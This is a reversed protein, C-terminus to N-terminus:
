HLVVICLQRHDADMRPILVHQGPLSLYECGTVEDRYVEMGYRLAPVAIAQQEDARAVLWLAFMFTAVGLFLAALTFIIIKKM